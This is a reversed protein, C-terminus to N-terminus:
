GRGNQHGAGKASITPSGGNPYDEKWGFSIKVNAGLMHEAMITKRTIDGFPTKEAIIARLFRTVASVM